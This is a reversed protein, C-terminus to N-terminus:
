GCALRQVSMVGKKGSVCFDFTSASLFSQILASAARHRGTASCHSRILNRCFCRSEQQEMVRLYDQRITKFDCFIEKNVCHPMSRSNPLSNLCCCVPIDQKFLEWSTWIQAVFLDFTLNGTVTGACICIVARVDVTLCAESCDSDRSLPLKDTHMHTYGAKKDGRPRSGREAASNYEATRLSATTSQPLM